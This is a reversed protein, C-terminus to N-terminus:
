NHDPVYELLDGVTVSGELEREFFGVLKNLTDFDSLRGRRLQEHAPTNGSELTVM